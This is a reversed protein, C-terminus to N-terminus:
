SESCDEVVKVNFYYGSGAYPGDGKDNGCSQIIVNNENVKFKESIIRKVDDINLEVIRKM